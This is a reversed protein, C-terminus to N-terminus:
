KTNLLTFMDVFNHLMATENGLKELSGKVTEDESNIKEKMESVSGEIRECATATLLALEQLNSTLENIANGLEGIEDKEDVEVFKSLDGSNIAKSIEIMKGLPITINRIFMTMVIAAVLSLVGFMTVIKNRLDSLNQEIGAIMTAADPSQSAQIEQTFNSLFADSSLEFYFEIGILIAAMAILLFYNMMKLELKGFMMSEQQRIRSITSAKAM